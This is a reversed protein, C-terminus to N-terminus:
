RRSTTHLGLMSSIDISASAAPLATARASTSTSGCTLVQASLILELTPMLLPVAPSPACLPATLLMPETISPWSAGAPDTSCWRCSCCSCCCRLPLQLWPWALAPAVSRTCCAVLTISSGQLLYVHLGVEPLPSIHDLVVPRAVACAPARFRVDDAVCPLLLSLSSMAVRTHIHPVQTGPQM